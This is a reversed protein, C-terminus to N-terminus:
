TLDFFFTLDLIYARKLPAADGTEIVHSALPTLGIQSPEFAFADPYNSLQLRARVQQEPNLDTGLDLSEIGGTGEAEQEAPELDELTDGHLQLLADRPTTEGSYSHENCTNTCCTHMLRRHPTLFGPEGDAWDVSSFECDSTTHADDSEGFPAEGPDTHTLPPQASTAAGSNTYLNTQQPATAAESATCSPPPQPANAADSVTHTYSPPQTSTAAAGTPTPPDPPPASDPAEHHFHTHYCPHARPSPDESESGLEPRHHYLRHPRTAAGCTNNHPGCTTDTGYHLTPASINKPTKEHPPGCFTHDQPDITPSDGSPTRQNLFCVRVPAAHCKPTTCVKPLPYPSYRHASFTARRAPTRTNHYTPLLPLTTAPRKPPPWPLNM